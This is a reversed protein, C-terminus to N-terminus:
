DISTATLSIGDSNGGIFLTSQAFIDGSTILPGGLTFSDNATINGVFRSPGNVILDKLQAM